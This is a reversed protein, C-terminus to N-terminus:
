KYHELEFSYTGYECNLQNIANSIDFVDFRKDDLLFQALFQKIADSLLQQKQERDKSIDVEGNVGSQYVKVRKGKFEDLKNKVEKKKTKM